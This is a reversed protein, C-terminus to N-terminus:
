SIRDVTTMALIRPFGRMFVSTRIYLHVKKRPFNSMESYCWIIGGTFNPETCLSDLHQVLRLTFSLKGSGLPGSLICSFPHKFKLDYAM